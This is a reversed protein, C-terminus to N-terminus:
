VPSISWIDIVAAPAISVNRTSSIPMPGFSASTGNRSILAERSRHTGLIGDVARVLLNQEGPTRDTIIM